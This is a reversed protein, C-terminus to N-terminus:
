IHTLTTKKKLCFVAYSIIQHSSNLRTSKRDGGERRALHVTGVEFDVERPALASLYYRASPPEGVCRAGEAAGTADGIVSEVIFNAMAEQAVCDPMHASKM